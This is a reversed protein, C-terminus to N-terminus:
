KPRTEKRIFKQLREVMEWAKGPTIRVYTTRNGKTVEFVGDEHFVVSSDTSKFYETFWVVFNPAM